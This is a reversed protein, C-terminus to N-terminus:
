KSVPKRTRTSKRTPPEYQSQPNPIPKRNSEQIPQSLQVRRKKKPQYDQFPLFGMEEGLDESALAPVKQVFDDYSRYPMNDLIQDVVNDELWHKKKLTERTAFNWNWNLDRSIAPAASVCFTRGFFETFNRRYILLCNDPFSRKLNRLARDTLDATTILVTIIRTRKIGQKALPSLNPIEGITDMNKKHESTLLSASLPKQLKKVQLACLIDSGNRGVHERYVCVDAFRAGAANKFALDSRWDREQEDVKLGGSEPFRRTAKVASLKKLKVTHNLTTPRGLAEQYIDGLTATERDDGILLNTRLAEYEAIIHEFFEWERDEVWDWLFASGLCNRVEGIAKNYIHLFFSPIRVLVKEDGENSDDLVTHTTRELFDLTFTPFKDCPILTHQSPKQLICLRVLARIIEKHEETFATISYCNNLTNAVNTFIHDANMGIDDVTDPFTKSKELRRGFFEELLLQLAQPLGGTASLLHFFSMKPMWKYHRIHALTSFHSMIDYCAGMSLTPCNLFHFSYSTPEASQTVEKRATGSLFTQIMDPEIAGSMFSGLSRMMEKFVCLGETTHCETKDGTLHVGNNSPPTPRNGKPTGRWLHAFIRQFEDIHLFSFLPREKPLRLDQRIATIVNSISFLGQHKGLLKSVQLHFDLFRARYKRGFFRSYALRLGIIIETEIDDDCLGLAVGNSFDLLLYYYYPSYEVGKM